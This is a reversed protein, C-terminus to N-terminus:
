TTNIITVKYTTEREREGERKRERMRVKIAAQEREKDKYEIVSNKEGEERERERERRERDRRDRDRRDRYRDDAVFCKLYRYKIICDICDISELWPGCLKGEYPQM